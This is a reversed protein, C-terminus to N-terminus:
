TTILVEKQKQILALNWDSVNCRRVSRFAIYGRRSREGNLRRQADCCCVTFPLTINLKMNAFLRRGSSAMWTFTSVTTHQLHTAWHAAPTTLGNESSSSSQKSASLVYRLLRATARSTCLLTKNAGGSWPTWETCAGRDNSDGMSLIVRNDNRGHTSRRQKLPCRTLSFPEGHM